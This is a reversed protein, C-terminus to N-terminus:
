QGNSDGNPMNQNNNMGNMNGMENNPYNNNMPQNSQGFNDNMPQNFGNNMPPQNFGDGMPQNYGNNMPPQNYGNGMPQNFGNNMPPQNYGQPGNQPYGNYGYYNQNPMNPMQPQAVAYGKAALGADGQVLLTIGEILGWLASASMAIGAASTLITFLWALKLIMSFSLVNPLVAAAVIEVIVGTSMLCVHIIGKKKEGLYWNHAGVSGLFIGLLGAVTSSKVNQQM